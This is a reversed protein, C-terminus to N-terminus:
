IKRNRCGRPRALQYPEAIASLYLLIFPRFIIIDIIGFSEETHRFECNTSFLVFEFTEKLNM